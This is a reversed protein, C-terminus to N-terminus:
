TQRPTDPKSELKDKDRVMDAQRQTFIALKLRTNYRLIVLSSLESLDSERFGAPAAGAFEYGNEHQANLYLQLEQADMDATDIVLYQPESM